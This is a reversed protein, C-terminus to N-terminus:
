SSTVGAEAMHFIIAQAFHYTQNFLTQVIMPMYSLMVYLSLYGLTIKLPFAMTFINLEPLVRSMFALGIIVLFIVGLPFLALELGAPYIRGFGHILTTQVKENLHFQGLKLANFSTYLIELWALHHDYVLLLMTMCLNMLSTITGNTEGTTPDVDNSFSLGFLQTILWGGLNTAEYIFQFALGLLYGIAFEKFLLLSMMLVPNKGSTVLSSATNHEYQGYLGLSLLTTIFIVLGIKATRPINRQSLLPAVLFLGSVRMLVAFFFLIHDSDQIFPLLPFGAIENLHPTQMPAKARM